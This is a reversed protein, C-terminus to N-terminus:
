EFEKLNGEAERPCIAYKSRAKIFYIKNLLVWDIMSIYDLKMNVLYINQKSM